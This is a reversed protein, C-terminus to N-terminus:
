LWCGSEVFPKMQMTKSKTFPVWHVYPCYLSSLDSKCDRGFICEGVKSLM